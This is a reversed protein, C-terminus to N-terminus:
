YTFVKLGSYASYLSKGSGNSKNNSDNYVSLWGLYLLLCQILTDQKVLFINIPVKKLTLLPQPIKVSWHKSWPPYCLRKMRPRANYRSKALNGM